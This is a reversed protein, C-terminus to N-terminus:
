NLCFVFTCGITPWVLRCPTQHLTNIGMNRTSGSTGSDLITLASHCAQAKWPNAAAIRTWGLRVAM